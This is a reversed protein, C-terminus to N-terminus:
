RLYVKRSPPDPRVEHAAPHSFGSLAHFESSEEEGEAWLNSMIGCQLLVACFGVFREISLRESARVTCCTVGPPFPTHADKEAKAPFAAHSQRWANQGHLPNRVTAQRLCRQDWTRVGIRIPISTKPILCPNNLRLPPSRSAFDTLGEQRL